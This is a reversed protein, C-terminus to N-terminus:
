TPTRWVYALAHEAVRSLRSVEWVVIADFRGQSADAVMQQFGPRQDTRGSIGEDRYVAVVEMDNRGCYERCATEQGAIPIERDAQGQSSVRLYLAARPM